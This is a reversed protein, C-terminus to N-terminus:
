EKLTEESHKLNWTFCVSEIMLCTLEYQNRITLSLQHRTLDSM